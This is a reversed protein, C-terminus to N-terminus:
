YIFYGNYIANINRRVTNKLFVLSRTKLAPLSTPKRKRLRELLPLQGNLNIDPFRTLNEIMRKVNSEDRGSKKQKPVDAMLLCVPEELRKIGLVDVHLNKLVLNQKIEAGPTPTSTAAEKVPSTKKPSIVGKKGVRRKYSNVKVLNGKRSRRSYGKITIETM